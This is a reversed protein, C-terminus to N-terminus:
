VHMSSEFFFLPALGISFLRQFAVRRNLVAVTDEPSAADTTSKMACLNVHRCQGNWQLTAAVHQQAPPGRWACKLRIDHVRKVVIWCQSICM